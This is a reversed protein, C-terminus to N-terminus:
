GTILWRGPDALRDAAAPGMSGPEYPQLAPRNALLPEAVEWVHALGDPRTFLSRDGQLIDHILRAYASLPEGGAVEGLSLTSTGVGLSFQPGPAKVVMSLDLEGSGRLSFSVVECDTPLEGSFPGSAPPRLVLSVRQETLALQKGTRLLFPVGQWRETDVWMRAAVFTDTTSDAAVGETDTYGAFQGLVVEEPDLPRFADIVAERASQLDEAALSTPPEMAVEAAVQFLHTVLMDLVAGTSDYFEAREAIGLEEPVDIQVQAIHRHNWAGAFLGNAFRLVHLNQTAEKGLFHDIRYVQQEQLVSHVMENLERFSQESTGFPKEYVVRSGEALGHAGIGETIGAFATPPVALYLVRQPDAAGVDKAALDLVELLQGADDGSFGGGAFLLRASFEEWPGDDPHTGFEALVDHVHARFEDHSREGRGSGVLRWEPPLLGEAALQFFAPLVMRRALDGTAGYLVFLM